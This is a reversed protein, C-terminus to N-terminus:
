RGSVLRDEEVIYGTLRGGGVCGTDLGLSWPRRDNLGRRADHGYLVLKKGKYRAWWRSRDFLARHRGTRSPHRPDVGAHVVRFGEGELMLPRRRLWHFASRPLDRGISWRKLVVLDQNGMVSEADYRKLLKWVREPQPGKTFLDGVCILRDPRVKDLLRSLSRACGHIDGVVLTRTM